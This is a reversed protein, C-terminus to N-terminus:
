DEDMTCLKGGFSHLIVIQQKDLISPLPHHLYGDDFTYIGIRTHSFKTALILSYFRDYKQGELLELKSLSVVLDNLAQPEGAKLIHDKANFGNNLSDDVPDHSATYSQALFYISEFFYNM